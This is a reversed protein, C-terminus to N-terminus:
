GRPVRGDEEAREAMRGAIHEIEAVAEDFPSRDLEPHAWGPTPDLRERQIDATMGITIGFAYLDLHRAERRFLNYRSASALASEITHLRDTYGDAIRLMQERRPDGEEMARADTRLGAIEERFEPLVRQSEDFTRQKACGGLMLLAACLALFPTTTRM